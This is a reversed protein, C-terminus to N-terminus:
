LAGASAFVGRNSAAFTEVPLLAYTHDALSSTLIPPAVM